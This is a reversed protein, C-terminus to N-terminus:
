IAMAELRPPTGLDEWSDLSRKLAKLEFAKSKAQRQNIENRRELCSLILCFVFIVAYVIAGLWCNEAHKQRPVSRNLGSVFGPQLYLLWGLLSLFAAGFVSLITGCLLWRGM